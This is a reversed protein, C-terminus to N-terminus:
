KSPLVLSMVASAVHLEDAGFIAVIPVLGPAGPNAVDTAAPVALMVATKRPTELAGARNVTVAGVNTDIEMEGCDAEM